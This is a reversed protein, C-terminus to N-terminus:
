VNKRRTFDPSEGTEKEMARRRPRAGRQALSELEQHRSKQFASRRWADREEDARACAQCLDSLRLEPNEAVRRLLLGLNQAMGEISPEDFLETRYQFFGRLGDATETLDLKLDHRVEGADIEMPALTLGPLELSHAPANQLVFWVRFLPSHSLSRSPQLDAVLREFPVDQHVYADLAAERVRVLLEQFTPDGALDARLVLTNLFFGILGETEVQGRNAIPSGVTLDDQGTLHLLLTQFAALLVMFLTANEHRALRALAQSVEIEVAWPHIAGGLRRAGSQVPADPLALSEPSGALQRRWYALQRDLVEGRLWERQWAAYDAYQVALAPLPSPAGALFASYLAGMERALVGISWGDSIVHHMVAVLSLEEPALRLLAIRLLPGRALDFPRRAVAVSLRQAEADRARPELGALDVLPMALSVTEAIVQGPQGHVAPFSTRLPEHRRLLEAFCRALAPVELRGILRFAAALNYASSGPDLQQLFWLREQGFSLPLERERSLVAIPPQLEARRAAEVQRALDALVPFEFVARLPLDVGLTRRLRSTFRAALLSHGGLAFFDADADVRGVALLEAWIGALIEEMPTRLAAGAMEARGAREPPPLARRDLKGAATAPLEALLVFWSPIMPLPLRARLHERLEGEAVKLGPRPVVYAVLRLDRNNPSAQWPVVLANLVRPHERLGAEIEQLEIRLGRIKVQQDIRGLFDVAGDPLYRALDGTRYLRDGPECPFPDPAFVRSTQAPNELYGLGLCLGALCLEGPVGVPAPDGWRDLIRIRVNAIPRGIPVRPGPDEGVAHCICGISAETPGYLNVLTVGPLLRRFAEASSVEMEEGGVVVARLSSFRAAPEGGERLQEVVVQFVSPVFDAMTVRHREVLGLLYEPSAGRRPDTLVTAGGQTLPWFIQWVSSDYVSRTTQLVIAAAGGFFRDMWQFRNVIGRHPVVVGKPRGTSGSTYIAYIPDGPEGAPAPRCPLDGPFGERGVRLLTRAPGTPSPFPIGPGALVVGAGVEDLIAALRAEPWEPDLPVFAAGARMTALLAIVLEPGSDILVPVFSGRGIGKAALLAALRGSLRDLEGYTLLDEGSIVAPAGPALAMREEVLHHLCLGGREDGAATDSWEVLLQHREEPRLLPLESLRRAPGDPAGVAGLLVELHGVMRAATTVDFLDTSYELTGLLAEETETLTLSLDLKVQGTALPLVELALGPLALAERRTNQLTLMVQFLPSADLSREPQLEEVLKEFPLDQHAHAELAAARVRRVLGRVTPDGSLDGRLVLTNVFLGILGETEFRTRGAIPAGVALDEEGTMRGLLAQFAALLLMFLTSGERAALLGLERSLAASLAVPLSGGKQSAV